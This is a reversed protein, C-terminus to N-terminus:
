DMNSFRRHQFITELPAYESQELSRDELIVIAM